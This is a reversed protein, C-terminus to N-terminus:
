NKPNIFKSTIENTKNIYIYLMATTLTLIHYANVFLFANRTCHCRKNKDGSDKIERISIPGQFNEVAGHVMSYAFISQWLTWSEQSIMWFITTFYSWVFSPKVAHHLSWQLCGCYCCRIALFWKGGLYTSWLFWPWRFFFQRQMLLTCHM